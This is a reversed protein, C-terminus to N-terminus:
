IKSYKTIDSAKSSPYRKGKPEPNHKPEGKPPDGGYGGKGSMRKEKKMYDLDPPTRKGQPYAKHKGESRYMKSYKENKHAM